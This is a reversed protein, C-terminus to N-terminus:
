VGPIVMYGEIRALRDELARLREDQGGGRSMRFGAEILAEAARKASQSTCGYTRKYIPETSEAWKEIIAQMVNVDSM